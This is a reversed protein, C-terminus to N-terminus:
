SSRAELEAYRQRLERYIEVNSRIPTVRDSEPPDTIGAVVREWPITNGLSRQHAHFARLAAGLAASNGGSTPYVDAGFVDAMVRLIEPNRSAGGTAVIRRTHGTTMPQSHNAMAMMQGEVVGRVNPVPDDPDVGFRRIGPVTILPTSESDVWPLVIGGGNGPSSGGLANSFGSWDLGFRDRVAERALSGNRFCILSMYGGTTSGFVHSAGDIAVGRTFGFVTDSTGLSIGLEGERVLGSGVLSCPNDGSWAVIQAAPLGFRWQWFPSLPGVITSSLRLAPLRAELGPATAALAAPSWQLSTIDMLNMGAGDGPEIPAEAGALVSCLFSSVLHIRATRAYAAPEVESFRRIQPGSFRECARSGTLRALAEAGGLAAEIAACQGPTSRDLWVPSQSRTFIGGLQPVIPDSPDLSELTDIAHAALYVTGHQQASGSIAALQALDMGAERVVIALMRDLAAVWMLPPATVTGYPGNVVGHSTGFAPFEADFELTREFVVRRTDGDADVLIATLSQTSSDLGLYLPM